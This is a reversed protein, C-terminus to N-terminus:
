KVIRLTPKVARTDFRAKRILGFCPGAHVFAIDTENDLVDKHFFFPMACRECRIISLRKFEVLDFRIFKSINKLYGAFIFKLSVGVNGFLRDLFKPKTKGYLIYNVFDDNCHKLM